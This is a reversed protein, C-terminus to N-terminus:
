RNVLLRRFVCNLGNCFTRAEVFPQVADRFLHVISSIPGFRQGGIYSLTRNEADTTSGQRGGLAYRGSTVIRASRLEYPILYCASRFERGLKRTHQNRRLLTKQRHSLHQDGGSKDATTPSWADGVSRRWSESVSNKRNVEPLRRTTARWASKGEM